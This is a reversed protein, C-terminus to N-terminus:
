KFRVIQQEKPILGDMSTAPTMAAAGVGFLPLGKKINARVEPSLDFITFGKGKMGGPTELQEVMRHHQASPDIKKLLGGLNKPVIDNYFVNMGRTDGPNYGLVTDGRPIAIHDAEADAAQQLARRLTTNTWQDTTNVLPHGSVAAEATSKEASLRVYDHLLAAYERATPSDLGRLMQSHLEGRATHRKDADAIHATADDLMRKTIAGADDKQKSIAAIKAEDRVGGDRLRQGWDSQIQDLTYVPRGEHKTMSTMMHGVINPEPFHGSRFDDMVDRAEPLHLVTEKYTPNSPDISYSSWKHM